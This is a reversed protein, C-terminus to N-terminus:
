SQNVTTVIFNGVVLIIALYKSTANATCTYAIVHIDSTRLLGTTFLSQLM